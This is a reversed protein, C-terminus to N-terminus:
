GVCQHPPLAAAILGQQSYKRQLSQMLFIPGVVTRLKNALLTSSHRM